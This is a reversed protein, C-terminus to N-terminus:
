GICSNHVRTRYSMEKMLGWLFLHLRILDLSKLMVFITPNTWYLKEYFPRHKIEAAHQFISETNGIYSNFCAKDTVTYEYNWIYDFHICNNRINQKRVSVVGEYKDQTLLAYVYFRVHRTSAGSSVAHKTHPTCNQLSMSTGSLSQMNTGYRYFMIYTYQAFQLRPSTM